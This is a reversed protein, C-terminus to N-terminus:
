GADPRGPTKRHGSAERATMAADVARANAQAHNWFSYDEKQLSPSVPLFGPVAHINADSDNACRAICAHLQHAEECTVRTGADRVDGAFGAGAVAEVGHVRMQQTEGVCREHLEIRGFGGICAVNDKQRPPVSPGHLVGPFKQFGSAADDINRSVEAKGVQIDPLLMVAPLVGGLFQSRFRDVAQRLQV